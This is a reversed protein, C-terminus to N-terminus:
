SGVVYAREQFRSIREVARRVGHVYATAQDAAEDIEKRNLRMAEENLTGDENAFKWSLDILDIHFEKVNKLAAILMNPTLPEYAM